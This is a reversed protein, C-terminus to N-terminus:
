WTSHELKLKIYVHINAIVKKEQATRTIFYDGKKAKRIKPM